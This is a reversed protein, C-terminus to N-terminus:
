FQRMKAKFITAYWMSIVERSDLAERAKLHGQNGILNSRHVLNTSINLMLFHMRGNSYWVKQLESKLHDTQPKTRHVLGVMQIGLWYM